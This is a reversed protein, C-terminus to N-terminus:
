KLGLNRKVVEAGQEASQIILQAAAIRNQEYANKIFKKGAIASRGPQSKRGSRSGFAEVIAQRAGKKGTKGRANWGDEQWRGYFPDNKDKRGKGKRLSLYVGIMGAGKGRHIKSRSVRLGRKLTGTRYPAAQQAARKVLNAGQRLASLMVRDGLQQSYSYLARQTEKLGSVKIVENSM